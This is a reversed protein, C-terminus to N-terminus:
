RAARVQDITMRPFVSLLSREEDSLAARDRQAKELALCDNLDGLAQADTRGFARAMARQEDTLTTIMTSQEQPTTAAQHSTAIARTRIEALAESNSPVPVFSIEYLENDTLIMVDDESKGSTGKVVRTKKSRFGVSLGRISKQQVGQWVQDAMPNARGDVFQIRARLAGGEVRVNESFGIPPQAGNQNHAWLVVPNRRYRALDWSSQDIRTQHSDLADTSAVVDISRAAPEIGRIELAACVLATM